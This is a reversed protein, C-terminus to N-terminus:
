SFYKYLIENIHLPIREFYKGIDDPLFKRDPDETVSLTNLDNIVLLAPIIVDSEFDVSKIRVWSNIDFDEWTYNKLSHIEFKRVNNFPQGEKRYEKNCFREIIHAPANDEPFIRESIFALRQVGLDFKEQYGRFFNSSISSFEEINTIEDDSISPNIFFFDTRARSINLKLKGDSSNLRFMPIDDPVGPPVPFIDPNNNVKDGLLELLDNLFKLSNDIRQGPTFVVSQFKKIQFQIM